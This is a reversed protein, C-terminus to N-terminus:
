HKLQWDFFNVYWDELEDDFNCIALPDLYTCYASPRALVFSLISLYKRDFAKLVQYTLNLRDQCGFEARYTDLSEAAYVYGEEVAKRILKSVLLKKKEGEITSNRLKLLNTNFNTSNKDKISDILEKKLDAYTSMTTGLTSGLIPNKTVSKNIM